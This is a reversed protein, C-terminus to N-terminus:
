LRTERVGCLKLPLKDLVNRVFRQGRDEEEEEEMAVERGPRRVGLGVKRNRRLVRRVGKVVYERLGPMRWLYLVPNAASNVAMLLTFMCNQYYFQTDFKYIGRWVELNNTIKRLTRLLYEIILPTNCIGYLLAFLLITITARNRSRQLDRLQVTKNSRTLVVVSIVCCIAVFFAPTAYIPVYLALMVHYTISQYPSTSYVDCRCRDRNFLIVSTNLSHFVARCSAQFATYTVVALVLTRIKLRRFPRVLSITRTASLCLVLFVSIPVATRWIASWAACSYHNGFIIGPSRKSMFSIAVPLVAISIVTDNTTIFMYMVNSIDRRKSKFFLFSVTNGLIGILFCLFCTFGFTVDAAENFTKTVSEM